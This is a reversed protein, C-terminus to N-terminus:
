PNFSSPSLQSRTLTHEELVKGENNILRFTVEPDQKRTDFTFEGFALLGGDYGFLQASRDPAFAKPGRDVGLSAAGFEYFEFGSPRKIKFGRAGHRDGSILLVGAINNMEIFSFIEERGAIDWTGWSDKAKSMYDSWMTGSTLIIFKSRSAKLTTKLWEMQEDGLYSGREGRKEWVRCSRTDLM